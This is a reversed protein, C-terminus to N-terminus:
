KENLRREPGFNKFPVVLAFTAGSKRNRTQGVPDVRDLWLAENGGVVRCRNVRCAYVM